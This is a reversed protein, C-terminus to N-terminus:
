RAQVAVAAAEDVRRVGGEVVLSARQECCGFRESTVFALDDMSRAALEVWRSQVAPAHASPSDVTRIRHAPSCADGTRWTALAPPPLPLRLPRRVLRSRWAQAPWILVDVAGVAVVDNEVVAAVVVVVAAGGSTMAGDAVEGESEREHNSPTAEFPLRAPLLATM